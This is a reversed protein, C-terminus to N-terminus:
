NGCVALGNSIYVNLDIKRYDSFRTRATSNECLHAALCGMFFSCRTRERRCSSRTVATPAALMGKRANALFDSDACFWPPLLWPPLLWPPLLWPTLLWLQKKFPVFIEVGEPSRRTCFRRM